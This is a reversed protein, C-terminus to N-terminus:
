LLRWTRLLLEETITMKTLLFTIMRCPLMSAPESPRVIIQRHLSLRGTSLDVDAVHISFKNDLFFLFATRCGKVFEIGQGYKEEFGKMLPPFRTGKIYELDENTAKGEDRAKLAYMQKRLDAGEPPMIQEMYAVHVPARAIM